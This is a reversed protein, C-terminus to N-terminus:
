AVARMPLRRVSAYNALQRRAARFADALAVYVDEHGHDLGPDRSAVIVRDPVALEIRVHFTGGSRQRRHPLEITVSCHRIYECSRDLRAAWRRVVATVAPSEAMGRFVIDLTM